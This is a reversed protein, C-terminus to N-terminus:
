VSGDSGYCLQPLTFGVNFQADVGYVLQKKDFLQWSTKPDDHAVFEAEKTVQLIIPKVFNSLDALFWYTAQSALQPLVILEASDRNLNSITTTGDSIYEQKLITLATTRLQPPVILHTPNIGIVEGNSGQRTLLAQFAAEFSAAALVATGKNSWATETGFKHNTAFYNKGDVCATAFGALLLNCVERVMGIPVMNALGTIRPKVVGLRDFQIEDRKVRISSEWDKKRITYDWAKLAKLHREDVWERLTPLENLWAYNEELSSSKVKTALQDLVSVDVKTLAEKFLARFGRQAATLSEVNLISM